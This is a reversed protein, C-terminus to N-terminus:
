FFSFYFWSLISTKCNQLCLLFCLLQCASFQTLSPNIIVEPSDLLLGMYLLVTPVAPLMLREDKHVPWPLSHKKMVENRPFLSIPLHAWGLIKPSSFLLWDRLLHIDWSNILFLCDINLFFFSVFMYSLSSIFFSSFSFSAQHYKCGLDYSNSLGPWIGTKHNQSFFLQLLQGMKSLLSTWEWRFDLFGSHARPFVLEYKLDSYFPLAIWFITSAYQNSLLFFFLNM